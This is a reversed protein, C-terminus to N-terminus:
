KRISSMHSFSVQFLLTPSPSENHTLKQQSDGTPSLMRCGDIEAPQDLPYWHNRQERIGLEAISIESQLLKHMIGM